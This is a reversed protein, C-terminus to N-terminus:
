LKFGNKVDETKSKAERQVCNSELKVNKGGQKRYCAAGRRGGYYIYLLKLPASVLAWKCSITLHLKLNFSSKSAM